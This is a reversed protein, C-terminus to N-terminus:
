KHLLFLIPLLDLGLQNEAKAGWTCHMDLSWDMLRVCQWRMRLGTFLVRGTRGSAIVEESGIAEALAASRMFVSKEEMGEM